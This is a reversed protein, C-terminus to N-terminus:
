WLLKGNSADLCLAQLSQDKSGVVPVATTLYIRGDLIIPSSWGHGPIPQKWAVNKTTSWELPLNKGDYHGQGTPGRFDRWDEAGAPCAIVFLLLMTFRFRPMPSM